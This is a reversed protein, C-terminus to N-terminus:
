GRNSHSHDGKRADGSALTKDLFVENVREVIIHVDALEQIATPAKKGNDDRNCLRGDAKPQTASEHEEM